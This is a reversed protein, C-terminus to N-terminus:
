KILACISKLATLDVTINSRNRVLWECYSSRDPAIKNSCEPIHVVINGIRHEPDRNRPTQIETSYSETNFGCIAAKTKIVIGNNDKEATYIPTSTLKVDLSIFQWDQNADILGGAEGLKNFWSNSKNKGVSACAMKVMIAIKKSRDVIDCRKKERSCGDKSVKLFTDNGKIDHIFDGNSNKNLYSSLAQHLKNTRDKGRVADAANMNTEIVIDIIISNLEEEIMKVIKRRQQNPAFFWLSKNPSSLLTIGDEKKM